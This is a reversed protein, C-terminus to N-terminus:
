RACAVASYAQKEIFKNVFYVQGKGTIKPTKSISIHGDSHTISTEKVEFLGIDMSYQTPMNYDTGKRKILYGNDRLWRFLRNQGMDVGNQKLIKALEGVLISTHSSSVANAFLVKPKQEQLQNEKEANELRLKEISKNAIELARKMIMEPSNWAKEVAIFYQRAQKGKENRQIMAIEKAMDLKMAHNIFETTPNKPNNTVRKQTISIFDINEVFGYEKMRSFWDNYRTKVELFEHLERGSIIVEGNNNQQLPILQENKFIQLNNM